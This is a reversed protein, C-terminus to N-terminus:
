VHCLPATPDARVMLYIVVNPREAVPMTSAANLVARCFEGVARCLQECGDRVACRRKSHVTPNPSANRRIQQTPKVSPRSQGRKVTSLDFEFARRHLLAPAAGRRSCDLIPYAGSSGAPCVCRGRRSRAGAPTFVAGLTGEAPQEDERDEAGRAARRRHLLVELVYAISKRERLHTHAVRETSVEQHM